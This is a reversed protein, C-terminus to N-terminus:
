CLGNIKDHSLVGDPLTGTLPEPLERWAVLRFGRVFKGNRVEQVEVYGLPSQVLYDGDITPFDKKTFVITWGNTKM